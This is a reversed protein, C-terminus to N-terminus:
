VGGWIYVSGENLSVDQISFGASKIMSELRDPPILAYFSFGRLSDILFGDRWAQANPMARMRSFDSNRYQVVFLCTGGPVIRSRIVDLIQRRRAIIPVV